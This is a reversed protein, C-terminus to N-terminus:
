INNKLVNVYHPKTLDPRDRQAAYAKATLRIIANIPVREYYGPCKKYSLYDTYSHRVFKFSNGMSSMLTYRYNTSQALSQLNITPKVVQSKRLYSLLAVSSPPLLAFRRKNKALDAEKLLLHEQNNDLMSQYQYYRSNVGSPLLVRPHRVTSGSQNHVTSIHKNVNSIGLRWSGIKYCIYSKGRLKHPNSVLALKIPVESTFLITAYKMQDNLQRVCVQKIDGFICFHEFVDHHGIELGLNPMYLIRQREPDTNPEQLIQKFKPHAQQKIVTLFQNLTVPLLYIFKGKIDPEETSTILHKRKRSNGSVSYKLSTAKVQDYEIKSTCRSSRRNSSDSRQVGNM